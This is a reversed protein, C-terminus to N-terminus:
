FFLAKQMACASCVSPIFRHHGIMEQLHRICSIYIRKRIQVRYFEVQTISCSYPGSVSAPYWHPTWPRPSLSSLAKTCNGEHWTLRKIRQSYTYPQPKGCAGAAPIFPSDKFQGERYTISIGLVQQSSMETHRHFSADTHALVQMHTHTHTHVWLIWDKM